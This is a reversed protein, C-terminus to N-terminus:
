LPREANPAVSVGAATALVVALGYWELRDVHGDPVYALGVWGLVSGVLAVIAKRYGALAEFPSM